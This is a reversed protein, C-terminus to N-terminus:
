TNTTRELVLLGNASMWDKVNQVMQRALRPVSRYVQAIAVGRTRLYHDYAEIPHMGQKMLYCLSVATSRNAGSICHLLTVDGFEALIEDMQATTIVDGDDYEFIRCPIGALSPYNGCHRDQHEKTLISVIKTIGLARLGPHARVAVEGVYLKDTIKTCRAEFEHQTM